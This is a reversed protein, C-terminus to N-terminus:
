IDQSLNGDPTHIYHEKLDFNPAIEVYKSAESEKPVLEMQVPLYSNTRSAKQIMFIPGIFAKESFILILITLVSVSTDWSQATEKYLSTM